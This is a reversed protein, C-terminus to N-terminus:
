PGQDPEEPLSAGHRGPHPRAARDGGRRRPRLLHTAEAAAADVDAGPERGPVRRGFQGQVAHRVRRSRCSGHRHHAERRLAERDPRLEQAPLDAHRAGARRGQLDRARRPRGQGMRRRHPRGHGREPDAGARRAARRDARLRRCAALSSASLRVACGVTRAGADPPFRHSRPRGRACPRCRRRELGHGMRHRGHRGGHRAVPRAGQRGRPHRQPEQLRDGHRRPRRSPPREGRLDVPHDRRAARARLRRRHRAARRARQVPLARVPGQSGEPNVSTIGLCYCVASNAASGRGQCLIGM